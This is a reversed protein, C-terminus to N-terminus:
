EFYLNYFKRQTIFLIEKNFINVNSANENTVLDTVPIVENVKQSLISLKDKNKQQEVKIPVQLM